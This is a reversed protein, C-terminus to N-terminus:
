CNIYQELEWPTVQTNYTICEQYKFELFIKAAQEGMTALMLSDQELYQLAQLLSSPLTQLDPFEALRVFM